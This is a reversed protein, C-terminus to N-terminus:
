TLNTNVTYKNLSRLNYRHASISNCASATVLTNVLMHCHPANGKGSLCRLGDFTEMSSLLFAGQITLVINKM